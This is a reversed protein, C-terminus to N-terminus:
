HFICLSRLIFFPDLTTSKLHEPGLLVYFSHNVSALIIAGFPEGLDLFTHEQSNVSLYVDKM